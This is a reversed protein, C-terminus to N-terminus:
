ARTEIRSTLLRYIEAGKSTAGMRQYHRELEKHVKDAPLVGANFENAMTALDYPRLFQYENNKILAMNVADRRLFVLAVDDWYVLAWKERPYIVTMISQYPFPEAESRVLNLPEYKSIAYRIDYAKFYEEWVREGKEVNEGSMLGVYDKVLPYFIYRGDMFIKREPGLAWSLYGGFSLTNFMAGAPSNEQVFRAAGIPVSSQDVLGPPMKKILFDKETWIFFMIFALSVTTLKKKVYASERLLSEAIFPIGVFAFLASTRISFSGLLAFAFVGPVWFLLKKDRRFFSRVLLFFSVGYAGWFFPVSKMDTRDWEMLIPPASQFVFDNLHRVFVQILQPGWPNLFSAVMASLISWDLARIYTKDLQSWRGGLNFLVILAIGCAYGAHLNCWVATLVGFIVPLKKKWQSPNERAKLLFFLYLPMFNLTLLEVRTCLRTKLILYAAWTLFLLFFGRASILRLCLYLFLVATLSLIIKAVFLGKLGFADVLAFMCVQSLWEFNIWQIGGLTHSFIDTRIFIREQVMARGAALQWWTDPDHIYHCAYKFIQIATLAWFIALLGVLFTKISPKM